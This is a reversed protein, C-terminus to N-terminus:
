CNPPFIPITLQVSQTLTLKHLNHGQNFANAATGANPNFNLQAGLLGLENTSYFKGWGSRGAPIFQEFRPAVRPFNNSLSSRFQCVNPSFNFSLPNEADDYLLGFLNTLTAAGTVLSGGLRNLVLLTDNGDGRSPINSAALVRPVRNYSLGDFNLITTVSAADCTTGVGVLAAFGEAALNAAHGSSLKVYADGILYNFNIPCGTTRDSAVAVIYGTTGPDIDSALFSATQQATLCVLSDAISCTAGDVFFLHVALPLTPHINTLSIRTNQANPAASSSSYLNYVLVSGARQDSVEGAPYALGPGVAPCNVTTCATVMASASGISATSIACLQTGPTVGGAVEAQYTITVTQGAGLTGMWSVTTGSCSGFSGAVTAACTGPLAILSQLTASFNVPQASANPNTVQATVNVVDGPGTCAVPDTISANSIIPPGNVVTVMKTCTSSCGNRTVTLTLTYSGAAGAVVNVTSNNTPGSITGNGSIMWSFSSGSLSSNGTYTNTSGSFVPDAGTINCTPVPNIPVTTSNSASCGAANTVTLNLTVNGSAGATYTITQLNTASTITGNTITWAYSTAGAPGSAQNGTSNACVQAPTPTITPTAPKPNIPVITSNSASCGSANTVTLMLTVNGSAGATYTITQLNTASTITGNTITWAYSTAGAPGSAQNGTSGACVQAPSPTITPTPPNANIPVTASNSASCGAANTVTLNLTVNGSAGATYTVTQTNTASTITGNMITWAYSTAGAPGSAQNGTSNACVQAPTPTIVPTAPTPNVTVTASGSNTIPCGNADQSGFAVMYTTTTTPSVTFTFTPGNGTQIGTGNTLEVTYPATGGNVTVTVTASQGQCITGGGSVTGTIGQCTVGILLLVSVRQGDVTASVADAGELENTYTSTAMGNTTGEFSPALTGRGSSAFSVQTDDPVFCNSLATNVGDSNITLKATLMSTGGQMLMTPMAELTLTLWPNADLNAAGTGNLGNATGTCGTGGLGPGFNCGWWNNQVDITETGNYTAGVRNGVIRNFNVKNTSITGAPQTNSFLIGEGNNTLGNSTIVNQKFTTNQAGYGATMNGFSTLLIGSRGNNSFVNNTFMSDKPGGQFGDLLNDSVVNNSFTVSQFSRGGSNIGISNSTFVNNDFLPTRGGSPAVNRNGDVFFGTGTGAFSGNTVCNFTFHFGNFSSTGLNVLGGSGTKSSGEIANRSITIDTGSHNLFIAGDTFGFFRNNIIQLNDLPGSTSEIQRTGGQFNFGNIITGASGTRLELTRSAPNLPVIITEDELSGCTFMGAQAGQLTVMKNVIVNETYTGTEVSITDGAVAQGIAYNITACALVTCDGVDTGTTSVLRTAFFAAKAPRTLRAGPGSLWVTAGLLMAIFLLPWIRQRRLSSWAYLRFLHNNRTHTTRTPAM